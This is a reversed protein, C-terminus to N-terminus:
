AILLPTVYSEILVAFLLVIVSLACLQLADWIVLKWRKTGFDHNAIAVSVLGGAIGVLLYAAMEPVGHIFYRLISIFLAGTNGVLPTSEIIFRAMALAVVSANWAIVTIGGFSYVLAFLLSIGLVVLNPKMLQWFTGEYVVHGTIATLTGQQAAFLTEQAGPVNASLFFLALFGFTLGIFLSCLGLTVHEYERLFGIEGVLTGIRQEEAVLLGNVFPVTALVALFVMATSAFPHFAILSLIGGILAFVSGALM